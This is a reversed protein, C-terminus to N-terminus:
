TQEFSYESWLVTGSVDTWQLLWYSQVPSASFICCNWYWTDCTSKHMEELHERYCYWSETIVILFFIYIYVSFGWYSFYTMIVLMGTVYCFNFQVTWQHLSPLSKCPTSSSNLPSFAKVWVKNFLLKHVALGKKRKMWDVVASSAVLCKLPLESLFVPRLVVKQLKRVIFLM